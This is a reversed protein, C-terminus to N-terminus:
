KFIKEWLKEQINVRTPSSKISQKACRVLFGSFTYGENKCYHYILDNDKENLSINKRVTKGV